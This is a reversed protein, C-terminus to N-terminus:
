FLLYNNIIKVKLEFDTCCGSYVRYEIVQENMFLIDLEDESMDYISQPPNTITYVCFCSYVISHKLKKM